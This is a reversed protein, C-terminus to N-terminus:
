RKILSHVMRYWFFQLTEFGSKCPDAYFIGGPDTDPDLLYFLRSFENPSYLVPCIFTLIRKYYRFKYKKIWKSKEIDNKFIWNFIQQNLKEKKINVGGPDPDAYFIISGSGHPCKQSGPNPDSYFSIRIRFASFKSLRWLKKPDIILNFIRKLISNM